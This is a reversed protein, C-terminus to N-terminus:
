STAITSFARDPGFTKPPSKLMVGLSNIAVPHGLRVFVVIIEVRPGDRLLSDMSKQQPKENSTM